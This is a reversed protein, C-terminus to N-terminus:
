LTIINYFSNSFHRAPSGNPGLVAYTINKHHKNRPYDRNNVIGINEEYPQRLDFTLIFDLAVNRSLSLDIKNENQVSSQFARTIRPTKWRHKKMIIHDKM